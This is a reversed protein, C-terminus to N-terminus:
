TPCEVLGHEILEIARTDLLHAGWGKSQLSAAARPRVLLVLATMILPVASLWDEAMPTLEEISGAYPGRRMFLNCAERFTDRRTGGTLASGLLAQIGLHTRTGVSGDPVPAPREGLSVALLLSILDVGSLTASMPEVLRPNCDIYFPAKERAHLIYDISLAGHWNLRGGIRALHTRVQPRRISEKIADGGGAGARLQRYAHFGILEGRCFVGQAHEIAGPIFDQLLVEDDALGAERFARRAVLLDAASRLVMTGRSATGFPSKVVCPYELVAPLEAWTLVRTPPQALGLEDLLRSFGAKSLATRYSEFSPLAIAVRAAVREPRRAFLFGQEHIPLLVDFARTAVLNEIFALYGVPDDRLPPCRHFRASIRSFRTLCHPDPDCIEVEHGQRALVTLAQRASTSSGESLLVRLRKQHLANSSV